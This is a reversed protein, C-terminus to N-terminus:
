ATPLLEFLMKCQQCCSSCCGASSALRCPCVAAHVRACVKEVKPQPEEPLVWDQGEFDMTDPDVYSEDITRCGDGCSCFTNLRQQLQLVCFVECAGAGSCDVHQGAPQMHVSKCIDVAGEMSCQTDVVISGVFSHAFSLTWGAASAPCSVSPTAVVLATFRMSLWLCTGMGARLWESARSPVHAAGSRCRHRMMTRMTRMGAAHCFVHHSTTSFLPLSSIRVATATRCNLGAIHM